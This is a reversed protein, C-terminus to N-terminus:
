ALHVRGPNCNTARCPVSRRLSPVQVSIHIRLLGCTTPVVQDQLVPRSSLAPSLKTPQVKFLPSFSSIFNAHNPLVVIDRKTDGNKPGQRTSILEIPIKYKTNLDNCNSGCICNNRLKASKGCIVVVITRHRHCFKTNGSITDM